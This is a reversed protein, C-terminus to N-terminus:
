IGTGKGRANANAIAYANSSANAYANSYAGRRMVVLKADLESFATLMQRNTLPDSDAVYKSEDGYIQDLAVLDRSIIKLTKRVLQHLNRLCETNERRRYCLFFANNPRAGFMNTTDIGTLTKWLGVMSEDWPKRRTQDAPSPTVFEVLTKLYKSMQAYTTFGTQKFSPSGSFDYAHIYSQYIFYKPLGGNECPIKEWVMVHGPFSVKSGDPKVFEGDTMMIYYVYRRVTVKLVDRALDEIVTENHDQIPDGIVKQVLGTNTSNQNNANKKGTHRYVVNKVDCFLTDKLASSGFFLVMFTVATNLCKTTILGMNYEGIDMTLAQMIPKIYDKVVYAIDCRPSLALANHARANAANHIRDLSHMMQDGDSASVSTSASTSAYQNGDGGKKKSKQSPKPTSTRSVAAERKPAM